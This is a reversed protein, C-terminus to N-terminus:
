VCHHLYFVSLLHLNIHHACLCKVLCLNLCMSMLSLSYIHHFLYETHPSWMIYLTGSVEAAITTFSTVHHKTIRQSITGVKQKEGWILEVAKVVGEHAEDTVAVTAMCILVHYTAYVNILYYSPM